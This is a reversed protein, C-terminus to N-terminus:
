ITIWQKEKRALRIIRRAVSQKIGLEKEVMRYFSSYGLLFHAKTDHLFALAEALEKALELIRTRNECVTRMSADTEEIREKLFATFSTDADLIKEM